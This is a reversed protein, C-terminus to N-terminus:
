QYTMIIIFYKETLFKRENLSSDMTSNSAPTDFFESNKDFGTIPIVPALAEPFVDINCAM